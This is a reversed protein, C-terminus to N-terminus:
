WIADESGRERELLLGGEGGGLGEWDVWGGRGGAGGDAGEFGGGLGGEGDVWQSGGWRSEFGYTGGGEGGRGM